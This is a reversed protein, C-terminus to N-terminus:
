RTYVGIQREADLRYKQLELFEESNKNWDTICGYLTTM